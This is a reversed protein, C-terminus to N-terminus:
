VVEQTLFKVDNGVLVLCSEGNRCTLLEREIGVLSLLERGSKFVLGGEYFRDAAGQTLIEELM